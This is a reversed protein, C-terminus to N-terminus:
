IPPTTKCNNVWPWWTSPRVLVVLGSGHFRAEGALKGKGGEDGACLLDTNWACPCDISSPSAKILWHGAGRTLRM